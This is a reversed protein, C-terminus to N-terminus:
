NWAPAHQLWADGSQEQHHLLDGRVLGDLRHALLAAGHQHGGQGLFALLFELVDQV